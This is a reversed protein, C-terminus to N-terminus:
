EHVRGHGIMKASVLELSGSTRDNRGVEGFICFGWAWWRKHAVGASLLRVRGVSGHSSPGDM